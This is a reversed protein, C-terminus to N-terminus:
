DKVAQLTLAEKPDNDQDGMTESHSIVAPYVRKNNLKLNEIPPSNRKKKRSVKKNSIYDETDSYCNKVEPTNIFCSINPQNLKDKFLERKPQSM